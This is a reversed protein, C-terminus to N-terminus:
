PKIKPVKFLTTFYIKSFDPLVLLTLILEILWIRKQTKIKRVKKFFRPFVNSKLIFIMDSRNGLKKAYTLIGSFHWFSLFVRFVDSQNSSNKKSFDPFIFTNLCCVCFIVKIERNKQIFWFALKALVVIYLSCFYM